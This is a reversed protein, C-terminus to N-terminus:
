QDERRPWSGPCVSEVQCLASDWKKELDSVRKGALKDSIFDIRDMLDPSPPTSFRKLADALPGEVLRPGYDFAKPRWDIYDYARM